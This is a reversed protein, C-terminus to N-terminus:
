KGQMYYISGSHSMRSARNVCGEIENLLDGKELLTRNQKAYKISPNEMMWCRSRFRDHLKMWHSFTLM